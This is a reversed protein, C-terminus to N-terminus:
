KIPFKLHRKNRTEHNGTSLIHNESDKNSDWINKNKLSIHPMLFQGLSLNKTVKYPSFWITILLVLGSSWILEVLAYESSWVAFICFLISGCLLMSFLSISNAEDTGSKRLNALPFIRWRRLSMMRSINSPRDEFHTPRAPYNLKAPVVWDPFSQTFLSCVSSFAHSLKHSIDRRAKRFEYM